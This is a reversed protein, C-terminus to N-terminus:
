LPFIEGDPYYKYMKLTKKNVLLLWDAKMGVDPSNYVVYFKYYDNKINEPLNLDDETYTYNIEESTKGTVDYIRHKIDEVSLGSFDNHTLNKEDGKVEILKFIGNEYKMIEVVDIIKDNTSVDRLSFRNLLEHVNDGDVDKLISGNSEQTYNDEKNTAGYKDYFGNEIYFNKKDDPIKYKYYKYSKTDMVYYSYDSLFGKNYKPVDDEAVLYEGDKYYFLLSYHSAGAGQINILIDKIKDGTADQADAIEISMPDVEKVYLTRNNSGDIIQIYAKKSNLNYNELLKIIDGVGDGDIDTTISNIEKYGEVSLNEDLNFKINNKNVKTGDNTKNTGCAVLSLAFVCLLAYVVKKRM